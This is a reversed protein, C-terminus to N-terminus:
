CASCLMQWISLFDDITMQQSRLGHYKEPILAADYGTSIINNYFTRRPQAFCSKIFKWFKEENMIPKVDLKISFYMLRSYVAPPPFFATPAIKTLLRWEFYYQFFLSIYGYGRGGKQVIKQAVEEQVMIVGETVCSRMDYLKKLIPFTVQYPLNSLLIWPADKLFRIGDVDLINEHFMTLRTDKAFENQVVSVWQGDIEFVWLKKIDSAMIQRTLFGDGCGIEFVNKDKLSVAQLMTQVVSVDRLFHQGFHKKLKVGKSQPKYAYYSKTDKSRTPKKKNM